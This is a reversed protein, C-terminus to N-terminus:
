DEKVYSKMMTAVESALVTKQREFSEHAEKSEIIRPLAKFKDNLELLVKAISQDFGKQEERTLEDYLDVVEEELYDEWDLEYESNKTDEEACFNAYCFDLLCM